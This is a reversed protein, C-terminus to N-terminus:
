YPRWVFADTRPGPYGRIPGTNDRYHATMDQDPVVVEAGEEEGEQILHIIQSKTPSKPSVQGFLYICEIFSRSVLTFSLKM